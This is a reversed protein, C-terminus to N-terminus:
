GMYSSGPATSWECYTQTRELDQRTKLVTLENAFHLEVKHELAMELIEDRWEKNDPLSFISTLIIGHPKEKIFSRLNPLWDLYENEFQYDNINIGKQRCYNDMMGRQMPLPLNHSFRSNWGAYTIFNEEGTYKVDESYDGPLRFYGGPFKRHYPQDKLLIRLDMSFRTIDTENNVNGHICEQNFLWSQGPKLEIPFSHKLSENQIKEFDWKEDICQKTLKRSIDLKLMQMSNTGWCETIPTWITRLGKGNGVWIGQHFSLLRGAKLQNPIVARLVGYRQILYKQNDVLPAIYKEIFKDVMQMFELRGCSREVHKQIKFLTSPDVEEHIKELAGLDPHVEKVVKEVYTRLQFDQIDYNLTDNIFNKYEM